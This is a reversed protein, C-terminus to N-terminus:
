FVVVSILEEESGCLMSIIQLLQYEVLNEGGLSQLSSSQEPAVGRGGIDNWGRAASHMTTRYFSEAKFQPTPDNDGDGFDYSQNVLINAALDEHAIETGSDIIAITIGDGDYGSAIVSDVNLDASVNGSNTAFNNQSRNNLHWQHQYYPDSKFNISVNFDNNETGDNLRLTVSDAYSESLEPDHLAPNTVFTLNNGNM